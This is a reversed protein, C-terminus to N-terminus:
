VVSKRDISKNSFMIKLCHNFIYNPINLGSNKKFSLLLKDYTLSNNKAKYLSYEIYKCFLEYPNETERIFSLAIFSNNSSM